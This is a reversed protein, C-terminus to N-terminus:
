KVVKVQLPVDITPVETAYFTVEDTNTVARYVKTWSKQIDEVNTYSVGNFNIDLLPIDTATIGSITVTKTYPAGGSTDTWSTFPLTATYNNVVAAGIQGVTVNHPNNTLGAHTIATNVSSISVGTDKLLKGTTGNWASINDNTVTNNALGVIYGVSQHNGWGFASDWNSQSANTPLSYGEAYSVALTGTNTIPNGSVTLGTPVSM